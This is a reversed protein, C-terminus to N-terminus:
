RATGPLRSSHQEAIEWRGDASRHIALTFRSAEEVVRGDWGEREVTYRGTLLVVSSITRASQPEVRIRLPAPGIGMGAFYQAVEARGVAEHPSVEGWLRADASFLRSVAAADGSVYAASWDALLATTDQARAPVGNGILSALTAAILPIRRM